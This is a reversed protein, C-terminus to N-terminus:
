LCVECVAAEAASDRNVGRAAAPRRVGLLFSAGSQGPM